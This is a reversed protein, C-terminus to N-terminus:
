AAMMQNLLIQKQRTRYDASVQQRTKTFKKADKGPGLKYIRVACRGKTDAEWEHVHIVGIKYMAKTHDYITQVNLGTAEALQHCNKDGDMLERLLIAYTLANIKTRGYIRKTSM